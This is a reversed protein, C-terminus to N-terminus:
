RRIGEGPNGHLVGMGEFHRYIRTV